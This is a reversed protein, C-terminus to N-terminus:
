RSRLYNGENDFFQVRNNRCDTVAIEDKSNIAVGWPCCFMGVSSGYKGFSLVPKFKFFNVHISFPSDHVHQGNVEITM